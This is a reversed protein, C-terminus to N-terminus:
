PLLYGYNISMIEWHPTKSVTHIRETEALKEEWTKTMDRFLKETEELREQLEDTQKSQFM